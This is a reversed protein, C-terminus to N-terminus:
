QDESPPWRYVAVDAGGAGPVRELNEEVWRVMPDLVARIAGHHRWKGFREHDAVFVGAPHRAVFDRLGALDGIGPLGSDQAEWGYWTSPFWDDVRGAYYHVPLYSSALVAFEGGQRRVWDGAERWAPHHAALTTPAGSAVALSDGALRAASVALRASFALLVLALLAHAWSRRFGAMGRLLACLGAAQLTVLAPYAFLLFRDWRYDLLFTLAALPGAFALLPLLGIWGRRWPLALAGAGALLLFGTSLNQHLWLVYFWRDRTFLSRWHLGLGAHTTTAQVDTPNMLAAMIAVAALALLPLAMALALALRWRRLWALLPLVLALVPLFFVSHFSTLLALLYATALGAAATWQGPTRAAPRIWAWLSLLFVPYVTQQLTYFRAQRAWALSWPSLALLLAAGVAAPRGAWARALGYLLAVNVGYLLASPARMPFEGDGALAQVVALLGNFLAGSHYPVGSPLQATGHAVMERAVYIHVLEDHWLSPVALNALALGWALAM